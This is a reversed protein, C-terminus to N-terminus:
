RKYGMVLVTNKEERNHTHKTKTWIKPSCIWINKRKSKAKCINEGNKKPIERKKCSEKGEIVWEKM